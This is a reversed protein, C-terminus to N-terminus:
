DKDPTSPINWRTIRLGTRGDLDVLEGRGVAAGNARITVMNEPTRGTEFVSGVGTKNLEALSLQHVGLDFSLQVPLDALSSIDVPESVASEETENEPIDSDEDVIEPADSPPMNVTIVEQITIQTGTWVGRLGLRQSVRLLISGTDDPISITDPFIVDGTTLNTFDTFSLSSEGIELRVKTPIDPAKLTEDMPVQQCLSALVPLAGNSAFLMITCTSADGDPMGNLTASMINNYETVADSQELGLLEFTLGQTALSAVLEGIAVEILALSLSEPVHSIPTGAPLTASLIDGLFDVPVKVAIPHSALTARLTFASGPAARQVEHRALMSGQVQWDRGAFTVSAPLRPMALINLAQRTERDIKPSALPRMNSM